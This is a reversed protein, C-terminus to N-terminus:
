QRHITDEDRNTFSQRGDPLRQFEGPMNLPLMMQGSDQAPVAGPIVGITLLTVLDDQNYKGQYQRGYGYKQLFAGALVQDYVNHEPQQEEQRTDDM